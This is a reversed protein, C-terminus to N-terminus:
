CARPSRSCWRRRISAPRPSRRACRTPWGRRGPAAPRLHQGVRRALAAPASRALGPAPPVGRGAGVVRAARDPRDGRGAPHLAAAAAPRVAPAGLPGAGGRRLDGGSQLNVIPQYFLTLESGSSRPGSRRRSTSGSGSTPTCGRSTPRRGARATGSPPTCRWTRTGSCTTRGHRRRSASAVGISATVRVQNGSLSFPHSM